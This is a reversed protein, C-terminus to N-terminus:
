ANGAYEGYYKQRMEEAFKVADDLNDLPFKGLCTNKGNVQLQVYWQNDYRSVNRYGSKNNRNRGKRNKSNNADPVIRLNSKRNDLTNNNIHDVIRGEARMIYQHLYVPRNVPKKNDFYLYETSVSYFDNIHPDYKSFWSYPFDLIRQLDEIDIITWLNEEGRRRLEIKVINNKKDIIYNNGEKKRAM